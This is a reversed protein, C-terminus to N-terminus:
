PQPPPIQRYHRPNPKRPNAINSNEPEVNRNIEGTERIIEVFAAAHYNEGVFSIKDPNNLLAFINNRVLENGVLLEVTERYVGRCTGRRKSANCPCGGVTNQYSKIFVDVQSRLVQWTAHQDSQAGRFFHEQNTECFGAFDSYDNMIYESM